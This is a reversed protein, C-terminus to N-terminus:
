LPMPSKGGGEFPLRGVIVQKDDPLRKKGMEHDDGMVLQVPDVGGERSDEHLGDLVLCDSTANQGKSGQYKALKDQNYLKPFILINIVKLLYENM